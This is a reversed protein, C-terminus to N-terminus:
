GERRVFFFVAYARHREERLRGVRESPLSEHAHDVVRRFFALHRDGREIPRLRVVLRDTEREAGVLRHVEVGVIQLEAVRRFSQGDADARALPVPPEFQGALQVDLHQGVDASVVAEHRRHVVRRRPSQVVRPAVVHGDEMRRALGALLAVQAECTDPIVTCCADRDPPQVILPERRGLTVHAEGQLGPPRARERGTGQLQPRLSDGSPQPSSGAFPLQEDRGVTWELGHAQLMTRRTVVLIERAPAVAVACPGKGGAM